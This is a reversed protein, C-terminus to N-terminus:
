MKSKLKLLIWNRQKLHYVGHSISINDGGGLPTEDVLTAVGSPSSNNGEPILFSNTNAEYIREAYSQDIEHAVVSNENNDTELDIGPLKSLLKNLPSPKVEMNEANGNLDSKDWDYMDKNQDLFLMNHRHEECVSPKEWDQVYKIVEQPM